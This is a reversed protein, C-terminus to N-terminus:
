KPAIINSAKKKLDNIDSDNSIFDDYPLQYSESEHMSTEFTSERYIKIVYANMRKLHEYENPFRLDDVVIKPYDPITNKWAQIWINKHILNRGWSTGLTMMAHRPTNGCLLHTPESKLHGYLQDDNLGIHKLM